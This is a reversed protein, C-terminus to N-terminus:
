AVTAGSDAVLWHEPATQRLEIPLGSPLIVYAHEDRQGSNDAAMLASAELMVDHEGGEEQLTQKYTHIFTSIADSSLSYLRILHLLLASAWLMYANGEVTTHNVTNDWTDAALKVFTVDNLSFPIGAGLVSSMCAYLSLLGWM